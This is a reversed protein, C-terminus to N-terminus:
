VSVIPESTYHDNYNGNEGYKRVTTRKYLTGDIWEYTVYEAKVTHTKDKAIHSEMPGGEVLELIAVDRGNMDFDYDHEM